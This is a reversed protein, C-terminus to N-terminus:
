FPIDDGDVGSDDPAEPAPETPTGKAKRPKRPTEGKGPTELTNRVAETPDGNGLIAAIDSASARGGGSEGLYINARKRTKGRYSDDEVEVEIENGVIVSSADLDLDGWDHEDPDFGCISLQRLALDRSRPTVWIDCYVTLGKFDEDNLEAIVAVYPTGKQSSTRLSSSKVIAPYIGLDVHEVDNAVTM